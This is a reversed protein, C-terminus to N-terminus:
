KLFWVNGIESNFTEFRLIFFKVDYFCVNKWRFILCKWKFFWVYYFRFQIGYINSDFTWSNFYCQFKLRRYRNICKALRNTHINTLIWYIYFRSFWDLKKHPRVLGWPLNMSAWFKLNFFSSKQKQKRNNASFISVPLAVIKLQFLLHRTLM